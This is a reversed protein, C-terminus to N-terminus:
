DEYMFLTGVVDVGNGDQNTIKIAYCYLKSLIIEGSQLFQNEVKFGSSSLVFDRYLKTGDNTITPNVYINTSHNLNLERNTNILNILSGNNTVTPNEFLEIMIPANTSKVELSIFHVNKTTPCALFYQVEGASFTKNFNNLFLTGLHNQYHIEDLIVLTGNSNTLSGSPFSIIENNITVNDAESISISYNNVLLISMAIFIGALLIALSNDKAKNSILKKKEEM